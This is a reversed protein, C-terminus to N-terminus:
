INNQLESRKLIRYEKGHSEILGAQMLEKIRDAVTNRHYDGLIKGIWRKTLRVSHKGRDSLTWLLAYVLLTSSRLDLEKTMFDEIVIYGKYDIATKVM